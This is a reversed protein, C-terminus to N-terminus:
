GAMISWCIYVFTMCPVIVRVGAGGPLCFCVFRLRTLSLNGLNLSFGSLHGLVDDQCMKDGSCSDVM